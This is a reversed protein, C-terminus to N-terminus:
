LKARDIIIRKGLLVRDAEQCARVCSDERVFQVFLNAGRGGWRISQIEGFQGFKEMIDEDKVDRPLEALLSLSDFALFFRILFYYEM